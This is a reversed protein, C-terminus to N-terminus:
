FMLQNTCLWHHNDVCCTCTWEIDYGGDLVPEGGQGDGEANSAGPAQLEEEAEDGSSLNAPDHRSRGTRRKKRVQSGPARFGTDKTYAEMCNILEARLETEVYERTRNAWWEDDVETGGLKRTIKENEKCEKQWTGGVDPFVKARLMDPACIVEESAALVHM